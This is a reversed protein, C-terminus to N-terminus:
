GLLATRWPPRGCCPAPASETWELLGNGTHEIICGRRAPRQGSAAECGHQSRPSTAASTGSLHLLAARRPHLPPKGRARAVQPGHLLQLTLKAAALVPPPRPTRSAAPFRLALGPTPPRGGHPPPTPRQTPAPAAPRAAAAPPLAAIGM